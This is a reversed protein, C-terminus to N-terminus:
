RELPPALRVPLPSSQRLWALGESVEALHLTRSVV